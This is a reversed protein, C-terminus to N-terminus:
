AFLDPEDLMLRQVLVVTKADQLDGKRLLDALDPCTFELIEIDEGEHDLGGGFGGGFGSYDDHDYDALFLDLKEGLMGPSPLIACVAQLHRPRFGLEEEMERAAADAANEGLDILGACVELPFGNEHEVLPPIRLQRVLLVTKRKRDVPLVAVANGHHHLERTIRGPTGDLRTYAAEILDVKCFGDYVRRSSLIDVETSAPRAPPITM